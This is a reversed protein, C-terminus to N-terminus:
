NPNGIKVLSARATTITPSSYALLPRTRQLMEFPCLVPAVVIIIIIIIIIMMM